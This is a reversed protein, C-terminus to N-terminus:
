LKRNFDAVTHALALPDFPMLEPESAAAKPVSSKAQQLKVFFLSGNFSHRQRKANSVLIYAWVRGM